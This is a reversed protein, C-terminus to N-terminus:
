PLGHGSDAATRHELPGTLVQTVHKLLPLLVSMGEEVARPNGPLNVILTAKRTVAIGRSLVAFPTNKLGEIALAIPIGPVDREAVDRTAEPTVDRVSLGTGGTTIVIDAVNSDAWETLQTAIAVRDDALIVRAAITHGKELARTAIVDGSADDRTGSAGKDSATLIAIRAM